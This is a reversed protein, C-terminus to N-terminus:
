FLGRQADARGSASGRAHDAEAEQLEKVLQKLEELIALTHASARYDKDHYMMRQALSLQRIASKAAAIASKFPM